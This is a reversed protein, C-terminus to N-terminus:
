AAKKLLNNRINEEVNEQSAPTLLIDRVGYKVAKIVKSRTWNSGAAILPVMTAASIKIAIGFAQENVERMVLYIAKVEGPLYNQVQDKFSLLKVRYNLKRLVVAIKDAEFDDDRIILVDPPGSDDDQLRETGTGEPGQSAPASVAGGEQEQTADDAADLRLLGSLQLLDLPVLLHVKGLTEDELILDMSSLYYHDPPLPDNSDLDVKMPVVTEHGKKIFRLKKLYQEEFVQTYVGSVINTIEGFADQIDDGFNEENVTSDLEMEPLMILVGGGRIADKLNVVLFGAGEADGVVDMRTVVQKGSVRDYFFDEKDTLSTEINAFKVDAGLLASVEDTMKDQCIALLNDVRKKHKELNLKSEGSPVAGSQEKASTAPKAEVGPETAPQSTVKETVADASADQGSDDAADVKLQLMAAPFALQLQGFQKGEVLLTMSSVYYAVDPMPEDSGIDVKMPQIESLGKKIFRIKKIYQEEFIATYVGSIINAIEGFADKLDDNFDEAGVVSELEMPPLMVLIGGLQIADKLPLVLYSRDELEGVVDMDAIVQKGSVNDYFLEEKSLIRNQLDILEIDVGTLAGVEEATRERCQELIRELRKKHKEYNFKQPANEPAAAATATEAAPTESGGGTETRAAATVEEQPAEEETDAEGDSLGEWALDFTAAPILATLNGLQKGELMMPFQIQYYVQDPVPQDSDSVVKAPSIVEQEKRIFRCSKPYSDEFEKSFSGAIINAIEGYSDAIEETYDERGSVEELESSPLMILTGGLRIADKIGVLLCGLGTVDGAIDLHACVQKGLLNEFVDGKKLPTKQADLLEFETGLLGAVEDEIRKQATDLIKDIRKLQDM